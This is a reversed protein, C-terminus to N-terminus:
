RTEALKKGHAARRVEGTGRQKVTYNEVDTLLYVKTRLDIAKTTLKGTNGLRRVYDSSVTHGSQKSLLAAADEGNIWEEPQTKKKPM